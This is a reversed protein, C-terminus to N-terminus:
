GFANPSEVFLLGVRDVVIKVLHRPENSLVASLIVNGFHDDAVNDMDPIALIKSVDVILFKVGQREVPYVQHQGILKRHVSDAKLFLLLGIGTM